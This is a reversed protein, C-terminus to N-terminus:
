TGNQASNQPVMFDTCLSRFGAPLFLHFRKQLDLVVARNDGRCEVARLLAVRQGFGGIYAFEDIQAGVEGAVWM